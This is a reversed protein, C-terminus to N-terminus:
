CRHAEDASASAGPVAAVTRDSGGATLTRLSASKSRCQHDDQRLNASRRAWSSARCTDRQRGSRHRPGGVAPWSSPSSYADRLSAPRSSPDEESDDVDNADDGTMDKFSPSQLGQCKDDHGRVIESNTQHALVFTRRLTYM